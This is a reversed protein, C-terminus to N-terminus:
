DDSGLRLDGPEIDVMREAIIEKAGALAEDVSTRAATLDQEGLQYGALVLSQVVREQLEAAYREGLLRRQYERAISEYQGVILGIIFFAALRSAWGGVGLHVDDVVVWVTLLGTSLVAGGLGGRQGAALATLAIPIVFLIAIAEVPDDVAFRLALVVPYLM